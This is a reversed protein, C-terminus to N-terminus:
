SAEGATWIDLHHVCGCWCGDHRTHAFLGHACRECPEDSDEVPGGEVTQRRLVAVAEDSAALCRTPHWRGGEGRVALVLWARGDVAEVVVGIQGVQRADVLQGCGPCAVGDFHTGCEECVTPRAVRRRVTRRLVVGSRVPATM